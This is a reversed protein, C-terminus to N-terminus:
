STSGRSQQLPEGIKLETRVSLSGAHTIRASVTWAPSKRHYGRSVWGGEEPLGGRCLTIALREDLDLTARGPGFDIDIRHGRQSVACQEALHFMLEIEHSARAEIEDVISVTRRGRDVELTRRCRVPDGLVEYGDHSASVRGGGARPAWELVRATARRGWLFSGLPESQDADDIVVTNHARTSRFYRRWEPFTFYDYTGPDVLVDVGFARVAFGLADAHGHAALAGFGLEGCDFVVSVIDSAGADGWQLLYCGTDAFARSELAASRSSAAHRRHSEGNPGFLWVATECAGAAHERLRSGDFLRAGVQMLAGIDNSPDGLDLVYGDDSDGFMPPPGGQALSGAFEFMLALREWFAPSFDRGTRRGALGAHLFLQLVFLHYGFAQERTAGSAYTQAVIENTLIAHSRERLREADPIDAFYSTAVFVGAAEGILHNNASSGRSYKRAIEWVHLAVSQLVRNEFAADLLGCDAILDLAWVWNVLRVALELPSRWNMGFGFPCQELWSDLQEIVAAAYKPDATARYARGLVVFQHHRNPEWVIKADGAVAYHRYDIAPAFTAPAAKGSAHDRNWDIPHGLDIDELDFFSLRHAAIRDARAVLRDRWAVAPDGAGIDRWAGLPIPSWRPAAAAVSRRRVPPAPQLNFALRWRDVVDRAAAGTRWALEDVSM